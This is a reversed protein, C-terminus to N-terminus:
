KSYVFVELNQVGWNLARQHGDIFMDIIKGKVGSGTDEAIYEHGNIVVKSGLPIIHPDVSITRGETPRTGTRTIPNKWNKGICKKCTCYATVKFKGLSVLNGGSENSLTAEKTRTSREWIYTDNETYLWGNGRKLVHVQDNYNYQGLIEGDTSPISRINLGGSYSVFVITDYPEMSDHPKSEVVINTSEEKESKEIKPLLRIGPGIEMQKSSDITAESLTAIPTVMTKAVSATAVEVNTEAAQTPPYAFICGVVTVIAFVFIIRNILIKTKVMRQMRRSDRLRKGSKSKEQM